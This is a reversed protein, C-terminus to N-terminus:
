AAQPTQARIVAEVQDISLDFDDSIESMTDGGRFRDVIDKVRAGNRQVVPYGFAVSPDVIVKAAGFAPLEIRNAYGDGAYTILQLQDMVTATLQGQRSRAVELNGSGDAWARVLLEARDTYLARSALAHEVGLERKVAEVGPRIRKAPVGARRVAALVFAEAFGVFPLRAEYGRAPLTTVIAGVDRPRCWGHLTSIPVALYSAAETLTYLARWVRVDDVALSELQRDASLETSGGVRTLTHTASRYHNSEGPAPRLGTHYSCVNSQRV